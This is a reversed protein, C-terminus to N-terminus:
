FKGDKRRRSRLSADNEEKSGLFSEKEFPLNCVCGLIKGTTICCCRVLRPLATNGYLPLPIAYVNNAIM